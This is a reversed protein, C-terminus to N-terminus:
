LPRRGIGPRSGARKFRFLQRRLLKVGVALLLRRHRSARGSFVGGGRKYVRIGKGPLRVTRVIGRVLFFLAGLIFVATLLEMVSFPSFDCLWGMMRKYPTTISQIVFNAAARSGRILLYSIFFLAAM